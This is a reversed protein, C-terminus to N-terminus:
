QSGGIGDDAVKREITDVLDTMGSYDVPRIGEYLRPNIDWNHELPNLNLDKYRVTVTIDSAIKGEKILPLLNDITDWYCGIKAGPALSTLGEDFFPLESLVLGDSSEVPDSFEFTIDKAPGQGVNQVILSMNPLNAYDESVTILPRGGGAMHEDRMEQVMTQTTKISFYYGLGIVVIFITQLIPNAVQSITVLDM